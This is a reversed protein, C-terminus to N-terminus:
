RYKHMHVQTYTRKIVCSKKILNVKVKPFICIIKPQEYNRSLQYAASGIQEIKNTFKNCENVNGIGKNFLNFIFQNSLSLINSFSLTIM